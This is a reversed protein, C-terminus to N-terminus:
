KKDRYFIKIKLNNLKLFTLISIPRNFFYCVLDRDHIFISDDFDLSTFKEEEIDMEFLPTQIIPWQDNIDDIIISVKSTTEWTINDIKYASITFEFVQPYIWFLRSFCGSFHPLITHGLPTGLYDLDNSLPETIKYRRYKSNLRKSPFDFRYVLAFDWQRSFQPHKTQVCQRSHYNASCVILREKM